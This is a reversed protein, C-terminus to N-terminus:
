FTKNFFRYVKKAAEAGILERIESEEMNSLELINEGKTAIHKYNKSTIGPIARLM